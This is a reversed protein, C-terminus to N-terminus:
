VLSIIASPLYTYWNGEYIYPIVLPWLMWLLAVPILIIEGIIGLSNLM